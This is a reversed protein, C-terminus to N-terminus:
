KRGISSLFFARAISRYSLRSLGIDVRVAAKERSCAERELLFDISVIFAISRNSEIRDVRVHEIGLRDRGRERERERERGIFLYLRHFPACVVSSSQHHNYYRTHFVVQGQTQYLFLHSLVSLNKREHQTHLTFNQSHKQTNILLQSSSWFFGFFFNWNWTVFFFDSQFM